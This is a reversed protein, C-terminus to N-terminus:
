QTRFAGPTVGFYKKFAKIFYAESSYGCQEAIQAVNIRYKKLMGRAKEMRCKELYNNIKDGHYKKFLRSVYCPNLGLEYCIDNRNIPMQYNHEIYDKVVKYSQEAKSIPHPKDKRVEEIAEFLLAKLLLCAKLECEPTTDYVMLNLAKLMGQVKGGLPSSTHYYPRSIFQGDKFNVAIIRIYDPMFIVSVTTGTNSEYNVGGWCHEGTFIIRDTDIEMAELAMGNSGFFGVKGDLVILIRGLYGSGVPYNPLPEPYTFLVKSPKLKTAQLMYELLVDKATPTGKFDM